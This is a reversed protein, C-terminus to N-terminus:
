IKFISISLIFLQFSLNYKSVSIEEASDRQSDSAPIMEGNRIEMVSLQLFGDKKTSRHLAYRMFSEYEPRTAHFEDWYAIKHGGDAIANYIGRWTSKVANEQQKREARLNKDKIADRIDIKIKPIEFKM